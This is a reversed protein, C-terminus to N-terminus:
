PCLLISAGAGEDSAEGFVRGALHPDHMRQITDPRHARREHRRLERAKLFPGEDVENVNPKCEDVNHELDQGETEPTLFTRRGVKRIKITVFSM